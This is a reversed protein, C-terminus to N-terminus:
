QWRWTWILDLSNDEGSQARLTFRQAIRYILQWSGTTANLGREYGVYWRRSLQKGLSIVTDRVEGASQRVSIEDLGIAKTFQDTVSEKEGALLALAARQLLATDTRGLGDSARGMVLWSLKDIESLEPESFLRIRPTVANGTVAVGVRVDINPRTAEIDLRPNDVPGNFIILGRDISLKQGYAAYTGDAARVTGNVTLRGNPSTIHLEGRLGTDLGRGRVRLKEGLNVRLDLAVDRSTPATAAPATPTAAASAAAAPSAVGRARVVEVDSSLSPAESRTFDIAGEDVGFSGTLALTKRDLTLQAQGSSVIRRDVRGLLQFKDATLKLVAKPAEGLSASGELKVTGAGGKATFREIRATSGQLAILVDGDSVNVGQLFNRVSLGTGRMEGTYEPASLRGGISASTRLAGDIRWGPPVWTGWTGLSAVQLELVGEIPTDAAPWTAQPSTRAVIAGAAVGVTKGALAQTFSWVGDNANLALRLDTLGLAQTGLEDTVTLDGASRELVIDARFDPASRLDIKGGISLDGGWGFDPQARALLPAVRLPEIQAQAEIQAFSGPGDAARWAIRSWRVAGGLVEARGPQVTARAPGGAWQLEIGVDRSRLLPAVGDGRLEIQQVNGRWGAFPAGPQDFAGGQAQLVALSRKPGAAASAAPAPVTALLSDTWAPPLAKSEARLELTHARASGKLQLQLSALSPGPIAAGSSKGAAAPATQTLAAETLTAQLEAPADASTGLKWTAQARQVSATGVRLGSADLQGESTMLPWRGALRASGSLTGALTSDSANPQLLKFLPALRNLAPGDVSVEWRDGAGDGTAGLRGEVRVSNGAADLTLLPMALNGAASRLALEGSLPVGALVSNAFTTVAEGRLAALLAALPMTGAQGPVGLDFTGKGNLRNVTKRWASDEAGPWWLAPDFDVLAAQGKLQWPADPTPHTALGSLTARAAGALVQADRVEIRQSSLSTDLLVRVARAPGRDALQGRLDAKLEVTTGSGSLALPGSLQMPAARSDLLAPQLAALTAALNWGDRNWRGTGTIRGANQKPTGLEAEFRRLELVSANDPRGGLALTLRHLPLRRDNWRGAAANTLDIDVSAPQDLGSSAAVARGSLSTVPAASSFASLDLAQTSAQLDGLPWAAFPRLTARADLSQPAERAAPETRVKALLVPAALPGSLSAGASWAPVAGFATQAFGLAADLQMPGSSQIRASGRAQLRDWGLRLQDIHHEAGGAAGLHLKAHLDTLPKDGLASLHLEAVSLARLEVEFPWKLDAPQRLPESTKGPAMLVDVRGAHLEDIILRFWRGADGRSLTLGRWGLNTLTVSDDSGPLKVQVRRAEFDGLLLGKPAEVQLGPILTLLWATGSESRLAWGISTGLAVLVMVLVAVGALLVRLGRRPQKAPM